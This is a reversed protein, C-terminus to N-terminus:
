CVVHVNCVNCCIYRVNPEDKISHDHELCKIRTNSYKVGCIWCNTEKKYVELLLPFDDDIIGRYKWHSIRIKDPNENAWQKCQLTHLEKNNQYYERSYAKIQETNKKYYKQVNEIVKQKNNAYYERREALITEKNKQYYARRDKPM